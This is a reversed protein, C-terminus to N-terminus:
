FMRRGLGPITMLASDSATNIDMPIFTSQELHAVKQENVYKGIERRFQADGDNYPKYEDFERAM